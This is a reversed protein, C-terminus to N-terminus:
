KTDIAYLRHIRTIIYSCILLESWCRPAPGIQHRQRLLQKLFFGNTARKLRTLIQPCYIQFPTSSKIRLVLSPPAVRYIDSPRMLLTATSYLTAYVTASYDKWVVSLM